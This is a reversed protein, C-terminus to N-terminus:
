SRRMLVLRFPRTGKPFTVGMREQYYTLGDVYEDVRLGHKQYFTVARDNGELVLLMYRTDEPLRQHLEAMLLGGLGGGRVQGDVYLRHLEPEPGFSDFHLYGQVRNDREAILFEALDASRCRSVCDAIAAVSYTQSVAAEVAVPDVLGDYQALMAARGIASVSEADDLDATRILVGADM